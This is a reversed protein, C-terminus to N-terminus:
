ELRAGTRMAACGTLFQAASLRKGGPKQLETLMLAGKGCAVCIGEKGVALLTGALATTPAATPHAAHIRLIDGDLCACAVPFPMFARVQRDLEAASKRWDLRAEAKDIKAAYSAGEAAQPVAPLPLRPLTAVLLQAGLAALRDHLSAATDRAYIPTAASILLAGTDLGADMQMLTVGSTADGALIARPIPAAGRWRPLLSAHINIAGFRPMELVSQPLILGYAAVILADAQQARIREWAAPNAKLSLPQLVEIGHRLALAKVPSPRTRMGRGAPRDPQTLALTVAHGADLLAALAAAAFEPTGAFVLKM